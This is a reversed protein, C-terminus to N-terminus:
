QHVGTATSVAEYLKKSHPNASVKRVQLIDSPKVVSGYYAHNLDDKTRIVAGDVSVGAYTGKSRAHTVFDKGMNRSTSGEMGGGRGGLAASADAGLKVTRAMLADVGKFHRCSSSPKQLSM